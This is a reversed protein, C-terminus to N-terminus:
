GVFRVRSIYRLTAGIGATGLAILHYSNDIINTVVATTGSFQTAVNPLKCHMEFPVIAGGSVAASGNWVSDEAPRTVYIDKLVRFRKTYELNRFANVELDLNGPDNLVDEANFQAGNTQKDQVLLMRVFPSTKPTLGSVGAFIINGQLHISLNKVQRGDRQTQGDGQAIANFALVSSAPDSESGAVTDSIAADYEYDIYKKEIGLFGGIRNNLRPKFRRYPQPRQRKYPRGRPGNAYRRRKFGSGAM